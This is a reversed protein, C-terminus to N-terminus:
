RMREEIQALTGEIKALTAATRECVCSLCLWQGRHLQLDWADVEKGCGDCKRRM